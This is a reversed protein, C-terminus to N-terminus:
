QALNLNITFELTLIAKAPVGSIIGLIKKQLRHLKDQNINAATGSVHM